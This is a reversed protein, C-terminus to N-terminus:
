IQWYRRRWRIAAAAADGLYQNWYWAMEAASILYAGGGYAKETPVDTPRTAAMSAPQAACRRVAPRRAACYDFRARSQRRCFRGAVAIRKPDIGWDAGQTAAWRIAAICDDLPVPFPHEPALAYDVSVVRMGSRKALQRTVGDYIDIDCVVFRRRASFRHHARSGTDRSRLAPHPYQREGRRDVAGRYAPARADPRCMSPLLRDILERAECADAAFIPSRRPVRHLDIALVARWRPRAEVVARPFAGFIDTM